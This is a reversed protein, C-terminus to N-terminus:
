DQRNDQSRDDQNIKPDKTRQIKIDRKTTMVDKAFQIGNEVAQQAYNERINDGVEKVIALLVAEPDAILKSISVAKLLGDIDDEINIELKDQEDLHKHIVKDLM